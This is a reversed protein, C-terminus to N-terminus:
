NAQKGSIFGWETAQSNHFENQLESWSFADREAELAAPNYTHVVTHLQIHKNEKNSVLAKFNGPMWPHGQVEAVEPEVQARPACITAPKMSHQPDFESARAQQKFM